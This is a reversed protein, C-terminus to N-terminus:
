RFQVQPVEGGNLVGGSEEPERPHGPLRCGAPSRVASSGSIPTGEGGAQFRGPGQATRGVPETRGKTSSHTAHFRACGAVPGGSTQHVDGLLQGNKQLISGARQGADAVGQGLGADVDIGNGGAVGHVVGHNPHNDTIIALGEVHELFAAGQHHFIIDQEYFSGVLGTAQRADGVSQRIGAHVDLIRIAGSGGVLFFSKQNQADVIGLLRQFREIEQGGRAGAALSGGRGASCRGAGPM